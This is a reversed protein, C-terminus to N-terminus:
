TRMPSDKAKNKNKGTTNALNETCIDQTGLYFSREEFLLLM